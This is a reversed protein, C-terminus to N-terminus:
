FKNFNFRIGCKRQNFIRIPGSLSSIREIGTQAVIVEKPINTKIQSLPYEVGGKVWSSIHVLKEKDTSALQTNIDRIDAVASATNKSSKGLVGQNNSLLGSCGILLMIGISTTFITIFKKM